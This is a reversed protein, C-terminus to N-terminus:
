ARADQALRQRIDFLLPYLTDSSIPKALVADCHPSERGAELNRGATALLIVFPRQAPRVEPGLIARDAVRSALQVDDDLVIALLRTHLSAPELEDPCTALSKLGAMTVIRAIVTTTVRAASVILVTNRTGTAPEVRATLLDSEPDGLGAHLDAM